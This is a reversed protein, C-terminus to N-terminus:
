SHYKKTKPLGVKRLVENAKDVKGQFLPQKKFKELSEDITVVPTKKSNLDKINM